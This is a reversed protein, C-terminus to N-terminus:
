PPNAIVLHLRERTISGTHGRWPSHKVGAAARSRGTGHQRPLNALFLIILSHWPRGSTRPLQSNKPPPSPTHRGFKRARSGDVSAGASARLLLPGTNIPSPLGPPAAAMSKDRRKHVRHGTGDYGSTLNPCKGTKLRVMRGGNLHARATRREIRCGMHPSSSRPRVPFQM